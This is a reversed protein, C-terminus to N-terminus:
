GEDPRGFGLENELATRDPLDDFRQVRGLRVYYFAGTVCALDVGHLEAWALRYLALQVPDANAARNTKWDVIEFGDATRYVADIRGIIQQGGLVLSFPAEIAFPERDGYPGAKFSEILEVLERDDAIGADGQGPLDSPDLLTQQGFHTEVWAHFKTGFQAATSPQRPMPRALERLLASKDASLRLATTASLSAPLRVTRTASSAALAEDVLLDIDATLAELRALEAAEDATELPVAPPAAGALHSRVLDAAERRRRVGTLETPWRVSDFQDLFPNTDQEDPAPAWPGLERDNALIWDHATLLFDSAGRPKVQTRGWWHGSVHLARKARTFAVYGLRREENLGDAKNAAKFAEVGRSSWEDIDPVTDRDGRLGVPLSSANRFWIGRSRENPFVKAAMFPVFVCEYELGKAKHATLLKVSDADTPASVEMGHNFENEAALYALLGRLSAYSDTEAYGAIAELLLAINDMGNGQPGIQLELDLDIASIARRAFDVLPEGVHTRLGRLLAAVQGFRLTAEASYALSGPDELADALSVVETPDAGEVAHQLETALDVDGAPGHGGGALTYARQGLLALDRPGIRWRPGTLLRLLAPNATVDEVVELVSLLDQVEPQSLLGNLGVVEVPVRHERLAKVIAGIEKGERVLIAIENWPHDDHARVIQGVVHRIEEDVTTHLAATVTGEVNGDAARLPSVVLTTDYYPKALTNALDIVPEPCRRSVDLSHPVGVSGNASPFHGLFEALNGAAAGRWGYIGQAPDGVATVSHGRGHEPDAGSFLNRLLDRQAVSTDQYEDLLVVGFRERMAIGVEPLAALQAGWAMQDSFDMVGAEAKAARYRDVLHSLETRKASTAITKDRLTGTLGGRVVAAAEMDALLGADFGRLTETTVLHESLEADLAMVNGILTPIHTSVHELPQDYGEIVRAMRQYRSADSIIRLDPEIGLRLGHEAILAGAFAHYTSVTPEGEDRSERPDRPILALSQRVRQGLEAAAKNTFTLGLVSAPAVGVHGVLWVVRAAMVTTKGSGAGAIIVQPADVPATIAALQEKSFPIKMLESLQAEDTIAKM